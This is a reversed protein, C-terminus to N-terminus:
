LRRRRVTRHVEVGLKIKNMIKAITHLLRLDSYGLTRLEHLFLDLEKCIWANDIGFMPMRVSFTILYTLYEQHHNDLLTSPIYKRTDRTKGPTCTTAM